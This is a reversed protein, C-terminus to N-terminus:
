PLFLTTLKGRAVTEGGREFRVKFVVGRTPEQIRDVTAILDVREGPFVPKAFDVAVAACIAHHLCTGVMRSLLTLYLFGYVLRDPYGHQACAAADVHLASHDGSLAEFSQMEAEGYIQSVTVALNPHLDEFRLVHADSHPM